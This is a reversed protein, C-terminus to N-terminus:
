SFAVVQRRRERRKVLDAMARGLSQGVLWYSEANCMWHYDFDTPSAPAPGRAYPRTDVSSVTGRFEPYGAVRLEADLVAERRDVVGGSGDPDLRGRKYGDMGTGAIAFPLDPVSLDRRVDRILNALNHEYEEAMTVNCGDNWGQHWAWGSLEVRTNNDTSVETTFSPVDALVAKITSIASKYYPGVTGGSSPPRFDVALSKGGWAVKVLLVRDGQYDDRGAEGDGVRAGGHFADGVAWGFGLEPGVQEGEQGPDGACLGATLRGHSTIGPTPDDFQRHNCAILVDSRVAWKSRHHHHKKKKKKKKSTKSKKGDKERGSKGSKGALARALASGGGDGEFPDDGEGGGQRLMGFQDPVNDVLWELTANRQEGTSDDVGSIWGHGVMNSQGVLAFVRILRVPADKEGRLGQPNNRHQRLQQQQETTAAASGAAGVAVVAPLLLALM